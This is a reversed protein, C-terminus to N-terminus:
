VGMSWGQAAKFIKWWDEHIVTDPHMEAVYRYAEPKERYRYLFCAVVFPAKDKGTQCFVVVPVDGYYTLQGIAGVILSLEIYTDDNLGELDLRWETLDFFAVPKGDPATFRKADEESALYLCETIKSLM